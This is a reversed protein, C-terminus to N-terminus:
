LDLVQKKKAEFEEQTIIGMDLLEKIKKLEDINSPKEKSNSVVKELNGDVRSMLLSSIEKRIESANKVFVFRIAKSSTSVSLGRLIKIESVRSVSQIPLDIHVGFITKGYVRKDTLVIEEKLYMKYSLKLLLYTVITPLILWLVYVYWAGELFGPIDIDISDEVYTYHTVDILTEFPLFFVGGILEFAVIITFVVLSIIKINKLITKENYRENKIIIKEEM